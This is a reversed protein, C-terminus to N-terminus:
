NDSVAVDIRLIGDASQGNLVLDDLFLRYQGSQTDIDCVRGSVSCYRDFRAGSAWKDAVTVGVSFAIICLVAALSFSIAVILRSKNWIFRFIFLTALACCAVICLVGLVIGAVVNYDYCYVCLVTATIFLAVILFARFNLVKCNM